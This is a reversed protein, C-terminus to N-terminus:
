KVNCILGTKIYFSFELEVDILRVSLNSPDTTTNIKLSFITVTNSIMFGNAGMHM